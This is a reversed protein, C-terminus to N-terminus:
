IKQMCSSGYVSFCHHSCYNGLTNQTQEEACILLFLHVKKYIALRTTFMPILDDLGLLTNNIGPLVRFGFFFFLVSHFRMQLSSIFRFDSLSLQLM